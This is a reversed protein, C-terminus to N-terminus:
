GDTEFEAADIVILKVRDSDIVVKGAEVFNVV